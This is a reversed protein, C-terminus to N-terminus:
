VKVSVLLGANNDYVSVGWTGIWGLGALRGFRDTTPTVVTHPSEVTVDAIGEAGIFLCNHTDEGGTVSNDPTVNLINNTDAAVEQGKNMGKFQPGEIFRIGEFVGITGNLINGNWSGDLHPYRWGNAGETGADERLQLAVEPTVLGVYYGDAMPRVGLSRFHAVIRRAANATFGGTGAGADAGGDGLPGGANTFMPDDYSGGTLAISTGDCVAQRFGKKMWGGELGYIADMYTADVTDRLNRAVYEAQMPDITTWSFRKLRQTVVTANGYENVTVDLTDELGPLAVAEPDAYESLPEKALPLGKAGTRFLTVKSGPYAAERVPKVTAFKQYMPEFRLRWNIVKDFTAKVVALGDVDNTDVSGGALANGNNATIKGTDLDLGSGTLEPGGGAHQMHNLDGPDGPTYAM